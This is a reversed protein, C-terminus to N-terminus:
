PRRRRASWARRTKSRRRSNPPLARLPLAKLVLDPVGYEKYYAALSDILKPHVDSLGAMFGIGLAIIATIAIFRGIHSSVTRWLSKTYAKM